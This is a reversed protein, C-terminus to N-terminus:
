GTQNCNFDSRKAKVLVRGQWYEVRFQETEKKAPVTLDYTMVLLTLICNHNRKVAVLEQVNQIPAM